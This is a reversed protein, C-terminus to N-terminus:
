EEKIGNNEGFAQREFEAVPLPKSFVFGQVMDCNAERLFKVQTQIEVGEAVTRMHLKQALEIVNEIIIKARGVVPAEEVQDGFFVSDLKLVDAPIDKLINLSSYGSGFDDLACQFGIAHIQEIIRILEETNNIIMSETLEIEIFKAPIDYKQYISKYDKLFGPHNLHVRSLNVSVPVPQRGEQLWKQLLKCVEEFIYLDLKIIFGNKEFVHIFESPPILGKQPDQWRALAEAGTITNNKLDYKPQLYVVFEHNSLAQEMRNEIEKERILKLRDLDSYFVCSSLINGSKQKCSKRAVNARDQITILNLQPDDITYIGAYIPLFYNSDNIYNFANIEAVGNDQRRKLEEHPANKVLLNFTDASIRAILEEETLYRKIIDHVYKLTKDGADSGFTDNILKFKEIDLSVLAYTNPPASVIKKTAELEFRVRNFGGTVPDVFAMRELRKQNRRQLMVILSILLLFLLVIMVNVVISLEIFLKSKAGTADTPVISLLYWKELQLPTYCAVYEHSDEKLTYYIIGSKNAAMDQHIQTISQASEVESDQLRDFFNREGTSSERNSSTLIVDGDNSIIQSFAAGDFSDNSIVRQMSEKSVCGLIAGVPSEDTMIPVSYIMVLGDGIPNTMIGSIDRNGKLANQVYPETSYDMIQGTTTFVIGNQDVAGLWGFGLEDSIKELYPMSDESKTIQACTFAISDLTQFNSDVRYDIMASMEDSLESLYNNSEEKMTNQLAVIYVACMVAVILAVLLLGPILVQLNTKKRDQTSTM